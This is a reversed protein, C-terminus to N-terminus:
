GVLSDFLDSFRGALTVWSYPEIERAEGHYDLGGTRRFEDLWETLVEELSDISSVAVGVGTRQLLEGTVGGAHGWALIPRGAGLYELVKGGYGKGVEPHDGLLVLLATSERQRVLAVSRPVVGEERLTGPYKLRERLERLKPERPGYLRVAIEEAGIKGEDILREVTLLLETPDRKLGFLSGTFTLFFSDKLVDVEGTYDAPDYGNPISIVGGPRQGHVAELDEALPRSVTTIASAKRLSAKELLSNLRLQSPSLELFPHSWPDRLDAVWPLGSLRSLLNAVIHDSLPPSTSMILSYGGRSLESLGRAVAFPIWLIYRDPFTAWRKGASFVSRVTGALVGRLKIEGASGPVDPAEETEILDMKVLSDRVRTLLDPFPARIVRVGPIVGEGPDSMGWKTRDSKVTPVIPSWGHQPLYSALKTPRVRGVNGVPPYNYSVILVKRL